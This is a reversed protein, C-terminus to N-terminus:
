LLSPQSSRPETCARSNTCQPRLLLAATREEWAARTQERRFSLRGVAIEGRKMRAFIQSGFWLQPGHVSREGQEAKGAGRGVMDKSAEVCGDMTLQPSAFDLLLPAFVEPFPKPLTSPTRHAPSHKMKRPIWFIQSWDIRGRKPMRSATPCHRVLSSLREVNALSHPETTLCRCPLSALEIRQCPPVYTNLLQRGRESLWRQVVLYQGRTGPSTVDCPERPRAWGKRRSATPRFAQYM